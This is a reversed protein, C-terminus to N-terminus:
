MRIKKGNQSVEMIKQKARFFKVRAWNSNKGLIEGIETLM